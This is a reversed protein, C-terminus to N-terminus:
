KVKKGHKKLIDKITEELLENQPKGLEIALIKLQKLLPEPVTTNFFVKIDIAYLYFSNYNFYFFLSDPLINKNYQQFQV